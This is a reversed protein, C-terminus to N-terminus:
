PKRILCQVQHIAGNPLGSRGAPGLDCATARVVPVVSRARAHSENDLVMEMALPDTVVGGGMVRGITRTVQGGDSNGGPSFPNIFVAGAAEALTRTKIAGFVAPEGFRLDTTWLRGGELSKVSSGPLARVFM